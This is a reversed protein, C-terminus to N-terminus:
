ALADTGGSLRGVIRGRPAGVLEGDRMVIQGRVITAVAEGTTRWGEFPTHNNKGHLRAAEVVGERALDVITLDADSGVEIAGKRPYLGWTRAPGEAAVRVYDQLSMRGSNVACTLFLRVSTEVGAFGSAALWIDENLKEALTHPAHDTAIVDIRGDVLGQLLPDAHGPERVPPNMRLLSGLTQMRESTLFCYHPTTECTVDIGKRRWEDVTALGQRSSLHFIHIPMGIQYAFLAARQIAELEAVVPRSDLHALPDHRGAAQLAHIHHQLIANNEAHFGMRLGTSRVTRMAELLTGDDPPPIHGTTEGLFCKYGVIGADAMPVLHEVNDQAVLGFLGFDCYAKAEALHRKHAVYGATSTTPRTNPMELVTTVGGMVAARSGSAWDEKYELGPERFHVHGDIIGPLVFQGTADYEDPATALSLQGPAAIEVFRGGDITIDAAYTARPTVVTGNRVVLLTM